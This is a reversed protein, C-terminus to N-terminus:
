QADISGVIPQRALTVAIGALVLAAGFMRIVTPTEGLLIYALVTAGMPEGLTAVAVFVAPLRALAWNFSSHGILQPVLALLVLWMYIVPDYGVLSQHAAGVMMLLVVAAASYVIAVYPALSLSARVRRGILWYGTVMLAGLLALSNGLLSPSRTGQTMDGLAIVFSGAVAVILGCVV